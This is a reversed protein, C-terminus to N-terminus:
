YYKKEKDKSKSGSHKLINIYTKYVYVKLIDVKLVVIFNQIWWLNNLVIKRKFHYIYWSKVYYNTIKKKEKLINM